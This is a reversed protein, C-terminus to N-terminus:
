LDVWLTEAFIGRKVLKGSVGSARRLEPCRLIPKLIQPLLTQNIHMGFCTHLGYGFHFYSHTSRHPDFSAPNSVRRPDMMASAFSVLMTTDAPILTARSTGEAVTHNRKTQRALAPALPDFRLAEFIYGALLADDDAMAAAIAGALADPRRLLQELAQPVVMPPQPLGGVLFGILASRIQKDTFGPKGAVQSALCRGLVDDAGPMTAKRAAILEDVHARLAPAMQAVDGRLSKSGDDAFQYEFLRTAWVRLAADPTDTIGFYPCLVDFTVNRALQDVVEIRGPAAAVLAAARRATAQTLTATIDERRVVSRMAATDRRYDPTDGMGLFFPEAGMIVDLRAKYPVPFDDDALFVERVDDYRTVLTTAGFRLIPRIRRLVAFAVSAHSLAWAMLKSGSAARLIDTRLPPLMTASM